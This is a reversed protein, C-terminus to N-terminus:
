IIPTVAHKACRGRYARLSVPLGTLQRGYLDGRGYLDIKRSWTASDDPVRDDHHLLAFTYLGYVYECFHARVDPTGDDRLPAGKANRTM